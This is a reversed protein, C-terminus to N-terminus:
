RNRWHEFISIVIFVVALLGFLVKAWGWDHPALLGIILFLQGQICTVDSDKM